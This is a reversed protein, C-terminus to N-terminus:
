EQAGASLKTLYEVCPELEMELEKCLKVMATMLEIQKKAEQKQDPEPIWVDRCITETVPRQFIGLVPIRVEEYKNITECQKEWGANVPSPVILLAVGLTLTSLYPM